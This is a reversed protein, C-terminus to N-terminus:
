VYEVECCDTRTEPFASVPVAERCSPAEPQVGGLATFATIAAPLLSEANIAYTAYPTARWVIAPRGGEPGWERSWGVSKLRYLLALAKDM